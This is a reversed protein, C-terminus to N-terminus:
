ARVIWPVNFIEKNKDFEEQLEDSANTQPRIAMPNTVKQVHYLLTMMRDMDETSVSGAEAAERSGATCAVMKNHMQCQIIMTMLEQQERRHEEDAMLRTYCALLITDPGLGLPPLHVKKKWIKCLAWYLRESPLELSMDIEILHDISHEKAWRLKV